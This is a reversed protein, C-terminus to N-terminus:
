CCDLLLLLLLVIPLLLLHLAAGPGCSMCCHNVAVTTLYPCAPGKVGDSCWLASCCNLCRM